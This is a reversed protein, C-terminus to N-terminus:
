GLGLEVPTQQVEQQQKTTKNKLKKIKRCTSCKQFLLQTEQFPCIPLCVRDTALCIRGRRSEQETESWRM